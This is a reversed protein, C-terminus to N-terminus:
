SFIYLIWTNHGQLKGREMEGFRLGGQRKRGAPSFRTLLNSFIYLIWTNHEQLKGEPPQRNRRTVKGTNRSYMKDQVMHKLIQYYTPGIFVKGEFPEGTYGSYMQESGYRQFGCEQLADAIDEVSVRNFPTGDGYKGKLACAKGLVTEIL